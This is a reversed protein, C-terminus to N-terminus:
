DCTFFVSGKESCGEGRGVRRAREDWQLSVVAFSGVKSNELYLFSYDWM